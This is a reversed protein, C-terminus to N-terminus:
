AATARLTVAESTIRKWLTARRRTTYFGLGLFVLALAGLVPAIIMCSVMATPTLTEAFAANTLIGAGLAIAASAVSFFTTAETNLTALSEMENEHVPYCKMTRGMYEAQFTAGAATTGGFSPQGDM